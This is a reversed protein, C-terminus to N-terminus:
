HNIILLPITIHYLAKGTTASKHWHFLHSPHKKILTLLQINRRKIYDNITDYFDEGCLFEMIFKAGRYTQTLYHKLDNLGTIEEDTPKKNSFQVCHINSGCEVIITILQHLATYEKHTFDVIFLIDTIKDNEIKYHTPIVLLPVKIKNLVDNTISGTVEKMENESCDSTMIVLDYAKTRAIEPIIEEPYGSALISDIVLEFPNASNRERALAEYKLLRNQLQPLTLTHNKHSNSRDTIEPLCNLLTIQCPQHNAIHFAMNLGSIDGQSFTIPTLIRLM